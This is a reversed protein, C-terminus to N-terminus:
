GQAALHASSFAFQLNYGGTDGDVDLVEGAFYLGPFKKSEMSKLDIEDLSVGGATVMAMNYGGLRAIKYRDSTVLRLIAKLQNGSTQSAKLGIEVGARELILELFRKPIQGGAQSSESNFYEYLVTLLQRGNGQFIQKLERLIQDEKKDPYVNFQIEDGVEAFRSVNLVGPGSFGNHTLLLSGDLVWKGEKGNIVVRASQFSIGALERYPYDPVYIPVLAPRAPKTEFGMRELVAFFSGDSGTIPYSCGGTAIILKKGRYEHKSCRVIYTGTDVDSIIDIVPSQYQFKLGKEQCGKTLEALIEKSQMSAPFVKGDERELLAIGRTRFFAMVSQNNFHYLIPRIRGGSKGYHSVFDKISGGHTLNCQGGGSMLLKRGPADGKELILGHVRSPLSAGAFLGAAGAGIIIRDYLM